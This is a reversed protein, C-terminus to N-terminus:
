PTREEGLVALRAMAADRAGEAARRKQIEVALDGTELEYLEARLRANEAESASTDDRWQEAKERLTAAINWLNRYAGDAGLFDFGLAISELAEAMCKALDQAQKTTM